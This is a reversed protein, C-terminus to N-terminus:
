KPIWTLPITPSTENPRYMAANPFVFMAGYALYIRWLKQFTNTKAASVIIKIRPPTTTPLWASFGYNMSMIDNSLAYM